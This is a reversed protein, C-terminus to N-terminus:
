YTKEQEQRLFQYVLTIDGCVETMDFPPQPFFVFPQQMVKVGRRLPLQYVGDLLLEDRFM